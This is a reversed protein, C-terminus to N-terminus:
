LFIIMWYNLIAATLNNAHLLNQINNLQNFANKLIFYILKIRPSIGYGVGFSMGDGTLTNVADYVQVL